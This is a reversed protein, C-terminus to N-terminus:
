PRVDRGGPRVDRGCVRAGAQLVEGVVVEGVAPRVLQQEPQDGRQHGPGPRDQAPDGLQAAGGRVLVHLVVEGVM